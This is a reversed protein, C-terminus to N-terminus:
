VKKLAQFMGAASCWDLVGARRFATYKAHWPFLDPNLQNANRILPVSDAM